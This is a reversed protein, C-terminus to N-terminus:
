RRLIKKIMGKIRVGVSVINKASYFDGIKSIVMIISGRPLANDDLQKYVFRLARRPLDSSNQASSHILYNSFLVIDGPETEVYRKRLEEDQDLQIRDHHTEGKVTYWRRFGRKHSGPIVELCGNQASAHDLSVWALIKESEQPRSLFDQHWAVRNERDSPKYLYSSVYLYVSKSFYSDLFEVIARHEAVCRTKPFRQYVDYLVGNDLRHTLYWADTVDRQEGEYDAIKAVVDTLYEAVEQCYEQPLAGKLVVYGDERFKDNLSVM